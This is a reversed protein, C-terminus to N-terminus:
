SLCNTREEGESREQEVELFPFLSEDCYRMWNPDDHAEADGRSWDVAIIVRRFMESRPQERWDELTIPKRETMM